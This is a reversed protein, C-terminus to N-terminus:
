NWGQVVDVASITYLVTWNGTIYDRGEFRAGVYDHASNTVLPIFRIKSLKAVNSGSFGFNLNCNNNSGQYFSAVDDDNLKYAM